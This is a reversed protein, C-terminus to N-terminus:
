APKDQRYEDPAGGWPRQAAEDPIPKLPADPPFENDGEPTGVVDTESALAVDPAEFNTDPM